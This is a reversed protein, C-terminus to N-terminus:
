CTSLRYLQSQRHRTSRWVIMQASGGMLYVLMNISPVITVTQTTHVALCNDSCIRGHSVSAHQYVTCNHSHRTSRWVIIQASGGMLYVLMNISPVITVTQTTHVALCNDSCIRGHSVSAHQYVTCNHSDTDHPGGRHDLASADKKSRPVGRIKKKRKKANAPLM